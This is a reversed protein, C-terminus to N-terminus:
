KPQYVASIHVDVIQAIKAFVLTPIKIQHDAVTVKFSTKATITGKSVILTATTQYNKTIGHIDLSGDITVTYTGDKELDIDDRIKGKFTSAPYKDSEMYNENFHEQMLKKPFQFTTNSVKFILNRTKTDIVSSAKTSTAEVDEAPTSAFFSISTSKSTYLHQAHVSICFFACILTFLLTKM